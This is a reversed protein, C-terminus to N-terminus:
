CHHRLANLCIAARQLTEAQLNEVDALNSLALLSNAYPFIQQWTRTALSECRSGFFAEKPLLHIWHGKLFYRKKESFTGKKWNWGHNCANIVLLILAAEPLRNSAACHSGGFTGFLM